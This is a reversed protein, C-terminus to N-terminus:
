FHNSPEMLRHLVRIIILTKDRNVYYLVHTKFPFCRLGLMFEDRNKGIGPNEALSIAQERLQTVYTVAQQSSFNKKTYTVISHLDSKARDTFQFEM